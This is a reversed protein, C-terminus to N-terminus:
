RRVPAENDSINVAALVSSPLSLENGDDPSDFMHQKACAFSETLEPSPPEKGQVPIVQAGHHNGLRPEEEEVHEGFDHPLPVGGEEELRQAAEDRDGEDEDVNEDDSSSLEPFPDYPLEKRERTERECTEIYDNQVKVVEASTNCKAYEELLGHNLTFFAHGWVFKDLVQRAEEEFDTIYLAAALAEACSLRLPKGYNVPNAAILFPLLRDAGSRLREFPVEDLRAWSCDVVGLGADAIRPIDARSIACTGQPSLVVGPIATTPRVSHLLGLRSLKRGTCRRPDCHNFDWMSLSPGTYSSSSASATPPRNTRDVHRGGRRSRNNRGM